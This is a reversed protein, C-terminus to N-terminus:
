IALLRLDGLRIMMNVRSLQAEMLVAPRLVQMSEPELASDVERDAETVCCNPGHEQALDTEQASGTAQVASVTCSPKPRQSSETEQAAGAARVVSRRDFRQARFNSRLEPSCKKLLAAM